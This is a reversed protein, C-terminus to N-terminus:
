RNKRRDMEVCSIGSGKLGEGLCLNCSTCRSRTLDGRGWRSILHPECILARSFSLYDADGSNIIDQAIEHSKIGGVLIVPIDLQQKLLNAASRFYAEQSTNNIGKRSPRYRDSGAMGGSIEVADLGRDALASVVRLAENPTIGGEPGDTSNIKIMLPYKEGVAERVGDYVELLFRSRKGSSGGYQDQRRNVLPNLFQSILYNHAGHLQVGDFGADKVRRAAQAFSSVVTRIEKLTMERPTKGFSFGEVASPAMPTRGDILEPRTRGGAHAIQAMVVGGERHVAECIRILGEMHADDWVGAQWPLGRGDRAVYFYGPIILGVSNRALEGMMEVLEPRVFGNKDALGEWTASRVTRNQLAQPGLSSTEFIEPM